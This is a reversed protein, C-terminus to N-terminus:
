PCGGGASRPTKVTTGSGDVKKRSESAPGPQSAQRLLFRVPSVRGTTGGCGSGLQAITRQARKGRTPYRIPTVAKSRRATPLPHVDNASAAHGRRITAANPSTSTGTRPPSSKRAATLAPTAHGRTERLRWVGPSFCRKDTAFPARNEGARHADQRLSGRPPRAAPLRCGRPRWRGAPTLVPRNWKPWSTLLIQPLSAM